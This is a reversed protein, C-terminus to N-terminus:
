NTQAEEKASMELENSVQVARKSSLIKTKTRKVPIGSKELLEVDTTSAKPLKKNSKVAKEKVEGVENVENEIFTPANFVGLRLPKIHRLM